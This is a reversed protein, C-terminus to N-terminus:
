TATHQWSRRRECRDGAGRRRQFHGVGRLEGPLDPLQSSTALATGSPGTAVVTAGAQMPSGLATTASLLGSVIPGLDQWTYSKGGSQQNVSTGGTTNWGGTPGPGTATPRGTVVTCIYFHGNGPTMLQGVRTASRSPTTTQRWAYVPPQSWGAGYVYAFQATITRCRTSGPRCQVATRVNFTPIGTNDGAFSPVDYVLSSNLGFRDYDTGICAVNAATTGSEISDTGSLTGDSVQVSAVRGGLLFLTGSVAGIGTASGAALYNNDFSYVTAPSGITM